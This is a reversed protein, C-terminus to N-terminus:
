GVELSDGQREDPCQGDKKKLACYGPDANEKIPVPPLALVVFKQVVEKSGILKAASVGTSCQIGIPPGKHVQQNPKPDSMYALCTSLDQPVINSCATVQYPM